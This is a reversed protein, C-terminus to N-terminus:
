RQWLIHADELPVALDDPQAILRATYDTAPRAASVEARYAYGNAGGVLQRVRDGGATPSALAASFLTQANELIRRRHSIGGRSL